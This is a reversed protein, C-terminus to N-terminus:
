VRWPSVRGDEGRVGHRYATHREGPARYQVPQPPLGEAAFQGATGPMWQALSKGVGEGGSGVVGACVTRGPVRYHSIGLIEIWQWTAKLALTGPGGQGVLGAESLRGFGAESVFLSDTHCYFVNQRGAACQAAWLRRRGEAYIWAAIAPCSHRTEGGMEERQARGALWRYRWATGDRDVYTSAGWQREGDMRPRNAWIRHRQACKGVLCVGMAKAWRALDNNREEQARMRLSQCAYAYTQLAPRVAYLSWDAIAQVAGSRWADALEGGALTTWFEGVPWVTLGDRVYPWRPEDTRVLVRAIMPQGADLWQAAHPGWGYGWHELRIPVSDQAMISTYFGSYDLYYIPGEVRGLRYCEARGGHLASRELALVGPRTHTTVIDYLYSRRFGYMAQAGATPQLAGLGHANLAAVMSRAFRGARACRDPGPPIPVGYNRTDYVVLRGPRDTLRLCLATPPDSLLLPVPELALVGADVLHWVGLLTLAQIAEPILLVLPGPRELLAAVAHLWATPATHSLTEPQGARGHRVPWVEMEWKELRLQRIAAGEGSPLASHAVALVGMRSPQRDSKSGLIRTSYRIKRM